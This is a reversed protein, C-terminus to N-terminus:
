ALEGDTSMAITLADGVALALWLLEGPKLM